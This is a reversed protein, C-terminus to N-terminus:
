LELLWPIESFFLWTYMIPLSCCSKWDGYFGLDKCIGVEWGKKRWSSCGWQLFSLMAAWPCVKSKNIRCVKVRPLSSTKFLATNGWIRKRSETHFYQLDCRGSHIQIREWQKSGREYKRMRSTIFYRWFNGTWVNVRRSEKCTFMEEGEISHYLRLVLVPSVPM